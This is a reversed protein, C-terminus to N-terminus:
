NEDTAFLRSGGIREHVSNCKTCVWMNQQRRNLTETDTRELM